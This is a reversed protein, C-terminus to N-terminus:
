MAQLESSSFYSEKREYLANLAEKQPLGSANSQIKAPSPGTNGELDGKGKCGCCQVSSNRWHSGACKSLMVCIERGASLMQTGSMRM